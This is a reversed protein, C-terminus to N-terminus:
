DGFVVRGKPPPAGLPDFKNRCVLGLYAQKAEASHRMEGQYYAYLYLTGDVQRYDPFRKVIDRWIRISPGFDPGVYKPEGELGTDNAAAAAGAGAEKDDWEYKADDLYLSALRFMADPTWKRDSPYKALFQKLMEMTSALRKRAEREAEGIPKKYREDLASLKAKYERELIGRLLEVHQGSESEYREGLKEIDKLEQSEAPTLSQARAPGG